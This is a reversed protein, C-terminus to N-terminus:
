TKEEGRIINFSFIFFKDFDDIKELLAPDDIIFEQHIIEKVLYLINKEQNAFDILIRNGKYSCLFALDEESIYEWNKRNKIIHLCSEKLNLFYKQSINKNDKLLNEIKSCLEGIFTTIFLNKDILKNISNDNQCDVILSGLYYGPENFKCLVESVSEVDEDSLLNFPKDGRLNNLIKIVAEKKTYRLEETLQLFDAGVRVIRHKSFINM